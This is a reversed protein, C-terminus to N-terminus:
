SSSRHERLMALTPSVQAHVALLLGGGSEPAGPRPPRITDLEAWRRALYSWWLAAAANDPLQLARLYHQLCRTALATPARASSLLYLLDGGAIGSFTSSGWDLVKFEGSASVLRLNYIGLDGHEIVTPLVPMSQLQEFARGAQEQLPPPLINREILRQLPLRHCRNDSDPDAALRTREAVDVLWDTISACLGARGQLRWRLGRFPRTTVYDYALAHRGDIATEATPGIVRRSLEPGLAKSVAAIQEAERVLHDAGRDRALKILRQPRGQTDCQFALIPNGPGLRGSVLLWHEPRFPGEGGLKADARALLSDIGSAPPQGRTYLAVGPCPLLRAGWAPSIRGLLAAATRPPLLRLAGFAARHGVRNDPVLARFAPWGPLARWSAMAQMDSGPVPSDGLLCLLGGPKLWQGLAPDSGIAVDYRGSAHQMTSTEGLDDVLHALSPHKDVQGLLVRTSAALPLLPKYDALRYDGALNRPELSM